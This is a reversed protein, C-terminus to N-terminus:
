KDFIVLQKNADNDAHSTANLILFKYEFYNKRGARNSISLEQSSNSAMGKIPENSCLSRIIIM